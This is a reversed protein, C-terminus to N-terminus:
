YSNFENLDRKAAYITNDDAFNALKTFFLLDNIFINFLIPGLISGQPLGSLLIKFLSETDNIKVGQKRKKMYLYIFTIADMSLGYARLKDHPICDFAKSLDMLVAGIINKDDLSKKWEETLKLFVHNSSYSKRYASVFKSLVKDTFNSLSDHLFRKYIKSFGNLLSAPRYNKIKGRDDNKYISRVLATKADESFQNKKLNKNIIHALHSDTVNAATKIIKPPIQDPGTAKNSNLSKIINNVDETTAEPFDFIPKEKVIEKIKIISSHNRYNEIIERITKEDLKPDM